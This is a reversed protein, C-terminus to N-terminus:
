TSKKPRGPPPPPCIRHTRTLKKINSKTRGEELQKIDKKM